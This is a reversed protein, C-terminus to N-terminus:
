NDMIGSIEQLWVAPRPFRTLEPDRRRQFTPSHATATTTIYFALSWTDAGWTFSTSRRTFMDTPSSSIPGAMMTSTLFRPAGAWINRTSVSDRPSHLTLFSEKVMTATYLRRTMRSTLRLFIWGDTATTTPSRQESGRKSVGM